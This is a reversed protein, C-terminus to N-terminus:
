LENQVLYISKYVNINLKNRVMYKHTLPSIATSSFVLECLGSETIISSSKTKPKIELDIQSIEVCTITSNQCPLSEPQHCNGITINETELRPTAPGGLYTCTNLILMGAKIQRSRTTILYIMVM